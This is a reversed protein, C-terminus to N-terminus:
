KRILLKRTATFDGAKLTYFYLGSAVSEGVENRGDWYAARSRSEYVGAAQQGLKLTRILKGDAAYILVRVDTSKSLQYPIWTEPNFPNPYNPYLRPEDPIGGVVIPAAQVIADFPATGLILNAPTGLGIVVNQINEGNLDARRISNQETWYIKGGAVDVTVGRPSNLGTILNPQFNSGDVNLRQVKGFSNTFYLKGNLSDVAIDYLGSTFDKVLQVNSGNLNARQIKAAAEGIQETWYIKSTVMDVTINRPSDLNTILNFQFNSGDFNLRQVKRWSNTLYIKSNVGDIAIDIPVSTLDKVLQVNTGDLDVRRIKGTRDSTKEAWYLKDGATDVALSTTNQVGPAFNEVKTGILRHLTGNNMDVWYMSPRQSADVLVVSSISLHKAGPTGYSPPLLNVRGTSTRWSSVLTGDPVDGTEYNITRYMSILPQSQATNGSQGPVKWNQNNVRDIVKWGRQVNEEKMVNGYTFQLKWIYGWTGDDLTIADPTTNYLEIWQNIPSGANLGWMIESIVVDGFNFSHRLTLLEIMGGQQFLGTLNDSHLLTDFNFPKVKVISDANKLRINEVIGTPKRIEPTYVVFNGSEIVLPKDSALGFDVLAMNPITSFPNGEPYFGELNALETLPSFDQIQNHSINLTELGTLGALPSLDSVQNHSINLTELGTLGALPSLDSVQNHSINLTELGTLGALPSLDSVQHYFLGLYNLQILRALPSLDRIEGRYFVLQKLLIAHEIGTLNKILKGSDLRRRLGLMDLQTIADGQAIGLQKRVAAALNADPISVIAAPPLLETININFTRATINGRADIVRLSIESVPPVILEVASFEITNDQGQLKQCGVFEDPHDGASRTTKAILRAQYLGDPDTLKFRLRVGYVDSARNAPLMQIRTPENFAIGDANFYPHVDLWEAACKPLSSLLIDVGQENLNVQVDNMIHFKDRRDHLLGFCHGLEHAAVWPRVCAGPARMFAFNGTSVGCYKKQRSDLAVLYINKSTDFTESIEEKVRILLNDLYYVDNRRGRIHHVRLKGTADAEFTFTKRGLGHRQMEQVYYEQATKILADLRIDIDPPPLQRDKPVFYIVRVVRKPSSIEQAFSKSIDTVAFFTILTIAFLVM